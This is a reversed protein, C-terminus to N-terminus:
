AGYIHMGVKNDEGKSQHEYGKRTNMGRGHYERVM